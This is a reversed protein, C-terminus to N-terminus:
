GKYKWYYGGAKIGKKCAVSINSIGTERTAITLSDYENLLKGNNDYQYVIKSLAKRRNAQRCIPCGAGHSRYKILNEM